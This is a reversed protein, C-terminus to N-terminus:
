HGVSAPVPPAQLVRSQPLPEILMSALFQDRQLLPAQDELPRGFTLMPHIRMDPSIEVNCFVPGVQALMSRVRARLDEHRELTATPLGYAGAVKNFDPFYLGSDHDVGEYRGELWTELTQKQIGHGHNNFLFIKIPLNYRRVTALEEICMQLGGDGIICVVNKGPAALSAGVAAALAYGMPSHNWASFLRQDKKVKFAQMTWTLNGGADTIIIDGEKCEESLADIFV